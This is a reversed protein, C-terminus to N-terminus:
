PVVDDLDIKNSRLFKNLLNRKKCYFQYLHYVSKYNKKEKILTIQSIKKLHDNLYKANKIRRKTIFNIKKIMQFGVAAQIAASALVLAIVAILAGRNKMLRQTSDM